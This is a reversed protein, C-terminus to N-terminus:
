KIQHGAAYVLWGAKDNTELFPRAANLVTTANMYFTMGEGRFGWLRAKSVGLCAALAIVIPGPVSKGKFENNWNAFVWDLNSCKADFADEEDKWQKLIDCRNSEILTLQHEHYWSAHGQGKLHLTYNDINSGGYQDAYSGIVIAQCDATFHTMTPGLDKAVQVLDGMHFKQQMEPEKKPNLKM